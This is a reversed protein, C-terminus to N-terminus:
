KRAQVPKKIQTIYVFYLLAAVLFTGGITTVALLGSAGASNTVFQSLSQGGNFLMQNQVAAFLMVGLFILLFALKGSVKSGKIYLAIAVALFALWPVILYANSVIAQMGYSIGFGFASLALIPAVVAFCSPLLKGEDDRILSSAAFLGLLLMVLFVAAGFGSLLGPHGVSVVSGLMSALIFAVIITAVSYIRFAAKEMRHEGMIESYALFANRVILLLAAAIIPAIYIPAVVPILNPYTAVLSVVYFVAFTGTIEWLPMIYHRIRERYKGYYVLASVAMGLEVIFLTLFAALIAYNLYYLGIM